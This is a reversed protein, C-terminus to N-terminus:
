QRAPAAVPTAPMPPTGPNAPLTQGSAPQPHKWMGWLGHSVGVSYGMWAVIAIVAVLLIHRLMPPTAPRQRDRSSAREQLENGDIDHM